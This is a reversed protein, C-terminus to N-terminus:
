MDRKIKNITIERDTRLELLKLVWYLEESRSTTIIVHCGNMRADFLDVRLKKMLELGGGGEHQKSFQDLRSLFSDLEVVVSSEKLPEGDVQRRAQEEKFQLKLGNALTSKGSGPKGMILTIM